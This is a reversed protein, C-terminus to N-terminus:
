IDTIDGYLQRASPTSLLYLWVREDINELCLRVETGKSMCSARALRGKRRWNPFDSKEFGLQPMVEKTWIGAAGRSLLLLRGEESSRPAKTMAKGAREPQTM